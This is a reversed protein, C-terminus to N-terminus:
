VHRFDGKAAIKAATAPVTQGLVQQLRPAIIRAIADSPGGAPYPVMLTITKGPGLQASAATALAIGALVGLALSRLKMM